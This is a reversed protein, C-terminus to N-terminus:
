LFFQEIDNKGIGDYCGTEEKRQTKLIRSSTSLKDKMGQKESENWWCGYIRDHILAYEYMREM